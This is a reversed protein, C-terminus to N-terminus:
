FALHEKFAITCGKNGSEPVANMVDQFGVSGKEVYFLISPMGLFILFNGKISDLRVGISFKFPKIWCNDDACLLLIYFFVRM